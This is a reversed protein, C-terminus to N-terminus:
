AWPVKTRPLAADLATGDVVSGVPEVSSHEAPAPSTAEAMTTSLPATATPIQSDREALTLGPFPSFRLKLVMLM